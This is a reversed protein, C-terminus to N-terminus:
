GSGDIIEKLLLSNLKAVIRCELYQEQLKELLNRNDFGLALVQYGKSSPQNQTM